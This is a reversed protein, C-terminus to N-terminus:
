DQWDIDQTQKSDGQSPPVIGARGLGVCPGASLVTSPRVWPLAGERSM